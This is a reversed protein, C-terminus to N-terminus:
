LEVIEVNQFSGAGDNVLLGAMGQPYSNDVTTYTVNSTGSASTLTAKLEYGNATFSLHYWTDAVIGGPHAVSELVVMAHAERSVTLNGTFSNIAATYGKFNNLGNMPAIIRANLGVVGGASGVIIADASITYNAWGSSGTVARADVNGVTTTGYTEGDVAWNGGFNIWGLQGNSAFDATYPLVGVPAAGTRESCLGTSGESAPATYRISKTSPQVLLNPSYNSNCAASANNVYWPAPSWSWTGSGYQNNTFVARHFEAAMTDTAVDWVAHSALALQQTSPDWVTYPSSGAYLGDETVVAAGVDGAGWTVGDTSTKTHIPCNPRGCVEYSMLYKGNDMLAVSAMGPRDTQAASAVDRVVEGWTEGGDDSVVHVLMQSHTTNDREDSFVAVLRNQKDLYLFPEWIGAGPAGGQQWIGGVRTWTQGHDTSRWTYFNTTTKNQPVLNGVLLLTGAPHNGLTAPFEFFFPQWFQAFPHGPGTDTDIVTALTSWTDGGDTSERIIFSGATGNAVTSDDGTTYWHEWTALLKGNLSASGTHQLQIVRAYVNAENDVPPDWLLSGQGDAAALSVSSLLGLARLASILKM